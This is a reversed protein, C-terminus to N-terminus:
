PVACKLPVVCRGSKLIALLGTYAVPSRHAFLGIYGGAISPKELFGNGGVKRFPREQIGSRETREKGFRITEARRVHNGQWEIAEIAMMIRDVKQELERYTYDRDAVHLATRKPHRRASQHFWSYINRQTIQESTM